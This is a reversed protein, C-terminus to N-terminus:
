IFYNKITCTGTAKNKQFIFQRYTGSANFFVHLGDSGNKVYGNLQMEKALQYIM